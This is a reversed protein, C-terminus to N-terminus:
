RLRSLIFDATFPQVLNNIYFSITVQYLNYDYLAEVNVSTLTVRYDFNKIVYTIEKTLASSTIPSMPEFLLKRLNSGYNPQFPKEYYNTLLLNKLARTVALEGTSLMLDKKAPHPQFTMDLDSYGSFNKIETSKM